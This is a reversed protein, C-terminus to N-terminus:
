AIEQEIECTLGRALREVTDAAESVAAAVAASLAMTGFEEDGFSEPECGVLLIRRCPDGLLAALRLVSQPDMAHPSLATEPPEGADPPAPEIVQITGPAAGRQVADVLVAADYGDLLAYALDLGRIGFDVVRIEPPLKRDALLQAVAVGFGDDGKFINGIGAVLIRSM